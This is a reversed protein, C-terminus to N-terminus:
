AYVQISHEYPQRCMPCERRYRRLQKYCDLCLCLHRCPLLVVSKLKDQCIVCAQFNDATKNNSGTAPPNVYDDHIPKLRWINPIYNGIPTVFQLLWGLAIFIQQGISVTTQVCKRCILRLLHYVYYRYKIIFYIAILGGLSQLPVSTVFKGTAKTYDVIISGILTTSGIIGEGISRTCRMLIGIFALMLNPICMVLMWASNGILVVWNRVGNASYVLLNISGNFLKLTEAKTQESVWEISSIIALILKSLDGISNNVGNNLMKIIHGYHYEIDFMFIKVDEYFTVAYSSITSALAAVVNSTATAIHIILKGLIYGVALIKVFVSVITEIFSSIAALM